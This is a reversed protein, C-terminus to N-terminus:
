RPKVPIINFKKLRYRLNSESVGLLRAANTQNQDVVNLAKEILTKELNALSNDFFFSKKEVINEIMGNLQTHEDLIYRPLELLRGTSSVISREIVYKLERINEKWERRVLFDLSNVDLIKPLIRLGACTTTIFHQVLPPIDEAREELSPIEILEFEQVADHLTNLIKGLRLAEDLEYVATIILRSTQKKGSLRLADTIMSQQFFSFEEIRQILVTTAKPNQSDFAGKIEDATASHPNLILLVGKPASHEHILTATTTKGAGRPGCILIHSRSRSANLVIKELNKAFASQGIFTSDINM